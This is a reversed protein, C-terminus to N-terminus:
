GDSGDGTRVSAPAPHILTGTTDRLIGLAATGARSAAAPDLGTDDSTFTGTDVIVIIRRRLTRPLPPAASLTHRRHRQTM